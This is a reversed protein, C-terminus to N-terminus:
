RVAQQGIRSIVVYAFEGPDNLGVALAHGFAIFNVELAIQGVM